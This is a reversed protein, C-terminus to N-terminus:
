IQCFIHIGILYDALDEQKWESLLARLEMEDSATARNHSYSIDLLNTEPSTPQASQYYNSTLSEHQPLLDDVRKTPTLFDTMKEM